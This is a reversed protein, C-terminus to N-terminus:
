EKKEPWRPARGPKKSAIIKREYRRFQRLSALASRHRKVPGPGAGQTPFVVSPLVVHGPSQAAPPRDHCPRGAAYALSRPFEERGLAGFDERNIQRVPFLRAGGIDMRESYVNRLVIRRVADHRCGHALEAPDVNQEVVRADAAEVLDLVDGVLMSVPTETHIDARREPNRARRDWM